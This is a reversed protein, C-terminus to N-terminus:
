PLAAAAPAPCLLSWVPGCRAWSPQQEPQLTSCVPAGTSVGCVARVKANSRWDSRTTQCSNEISGAPERAPERACARAGGCNVHVQRGNAARIGNVEASASFNEHRHAK